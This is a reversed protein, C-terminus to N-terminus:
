RSERFRRPGGAIRVVTCGSSPRTPNRRGSGSGRTPITTRTLRADSSNQMTSTCGPEDAIGLATNIRARAEDLRGAAILLQALVCDYHTQYAVLGLSRWLEIWQNMADIQASLGDTPITQERANMLRIAQVLSQETMGFMQWFDFGYRESREIMDTVLEGARDFQGAEIRM